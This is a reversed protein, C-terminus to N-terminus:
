QNYEYNLLKFIKNAKKEGLIGILEHRKANVFNKISKFRKLIKEATKYSIGPFSILISLIAKDLEERKKRIKTKPLVFFQSGYKECIKALIKATEFINETFIISVNTSAIIKTLMGYFIEKQEENLLFGELIVIYKKFEKQNEIQEFIRKDFTSKLFDQSTKREIAIDGIIFDVSLNEKIIHINKYNNELIETLERERYDAIITPKKILIKQKM